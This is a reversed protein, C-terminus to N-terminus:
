LITRIRLSACGRHLSAMSGWPIIIIQSKSVPIVLQRERGLRRGGFVFGLSTSIRLIKSFSNPLAREQSELFYLTGSGRRIGVEDAVTFLSPPLRMSAKVVVRLSNARKRGVLFDVSVNRLSADPDRSWGIMRTEIFRLLGEFLM